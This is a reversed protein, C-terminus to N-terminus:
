LSNSLIQLVEVDPLPIEYGGCCFTVEGALDSILTGSVSEVKALGPKFAGGSRGKRMTFLCNPWQLRTTDSCTAAVQLESIHLPDGISDVNRANQCFKALSSSCM